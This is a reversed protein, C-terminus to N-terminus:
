GRTKVFYASDALREPILANLTAPKAFASRVNGVAHKVDEWSEFKLYQSDQGFIQNILISMDTSKSLGLVTKRVVGTETAKCFEVLKTLLRVWITVKHHDFTGHMQRFELTGKDRLPLINLGTYKSWKEVSNALDDTAMFTLLNTDFLPVCYINKARGRGTFKYLLPEICAYLLIIDVVKETPLDQMNLHVHISTRPSFCSDKQLTDQLLEQLIHPAYKAAMPQSIFEVGGNRLSGDATPIWAGSNPTHTNQANEVEVEIGMLVESDIPDAPVPQTDFHKKWATLAKVQKMGFYEIISKGM